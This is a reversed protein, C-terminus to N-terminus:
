RITAQNSRGNPRREQNWGSIEQTGHFIGLVRGMGHSQRPQQQYAPEGNEAQGVGDKDM